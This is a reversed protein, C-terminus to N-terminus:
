FPADSEDIPEAKGLSGFKGNESVHHQVLRPENISHDVVTKTEGDKEYSGIKSGLQGEIEVWDLDNVGTPTNFWVTWKRFVDKGNVHFKEWVTFRGKDSVNSVNGTIIVKAM